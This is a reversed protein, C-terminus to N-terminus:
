KKIKEVTFSVKNEKYTVCDSVKLYNVEDHEKLWNFGKLDLSFSVKEPRKEAPIELRKQEWKKQDLSYKSNKKLNIKFDEENFTKSKEKFSTDFLGLLKNEVEQRKENAKKEAKKLKLWEKLLDYKENM